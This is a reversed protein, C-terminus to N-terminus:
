NWTQFMRFIIGAPTSHPNLSISRFLSIVTGPLSHVCHINPMIIIDNNNSSNNYNNLFSLSLSAFHKGLLCFYLVHPKLLCVCMESEVSQARTMGCGQTIRGKSHIQPSPDPDERSPSTASSRPLCSLGMALPQGLLCCLSGCEQDRIEAESCERALTLTPVRSHPRPAPLFDLIDGLTTWNKWAM